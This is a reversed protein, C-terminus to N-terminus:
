IRSHGRALEARTRLYRTLEGRHIAGVVRGADSVLIHDTSDEIMDHFVSLLDQDIHATKLGGIPTMIERVSTVPWDERTTKKLQQLTVMGEPVGERTVLFCRRGSPLMHENVLEAISTETAVSPCDYDAVQGVTLAGLSDRFLAQRYSARAADHLFWGILIFWMGSFWYARVFVMLAIGATIFMFAIVQGTRSAIRTARRYDRMRHWLLARFIRGGDLPFAPILNFMALLVNIFALWQMLYAALTHETPALLLHVGYFAGALALSTLPGVVAVASETRSSTAERTIQSVGGFVFLTIERVPISNRIAVISHALEHTIISAFFLASTFIGLIIGQEISYSQAVAYRLLSYTVLTFIIFWTYHLRLPIDFVKGLGIQGRM